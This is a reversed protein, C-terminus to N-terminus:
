VGAEPTSEAGALAKVGVFVEDPALEPFEVLLESILL